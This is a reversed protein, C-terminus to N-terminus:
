DLPRPVDGGGRRDGRRRRRRGTAAMVGRDLWFPADTPIIARFAATAACGCGCASSWRPSCCSPTRCWAGASCRAGAAAVGAAVAPLLWWVLLPGTEAPLSSFQWWGIAAPPSPSPSCRGRWGPRTSWRWSCSRAASPPASPSRCGRRRRCGRGAVRRGDVPDGDVIMPVTSAQIQTAPRARRRRTRAGDLPGPPRALRVRGGSGVPQWDPPLTPDAGAPPTAAATATPTSTRRRRASTRRSSATPGSTCTRSRSTARRRRGRHRARGDLQLFSDGGVVTSTSAPPRRPRGVRRDDRLRDARGPRRARRRGAGAVAVVGVARRSAGRPGVRVMGTLTTPPRSCSASTAPSTTPAADEGGGVPWTLVLQGADDVAFLYSSHGVEITATPRRACRTASASRGPSPSCRPRTTPPSPTPAPRRLEARLRRARPTDRDPDVTVMAVEVREADDGLDDLATACTPWRRRACTRATRTASTSSWCATPRAGPVRVARRRPQRRAPRRRRGAARPRPDHRRARPRRRRVGRPAPLSWRGVVRPMRRRMRRGNLEVIYAVLDAVEADTLDTKPMTSPSATSSRPTPTPSRGPSTPRTSPSRRATPRARGDTGLAGAWAPGLAARATPATAPRAAARGPSSQRSGRDGDPSSSRVPRRRRRRRRVGVAGGLLLPVASRWRRAPGVTRAGDAPLRAASGASGGDARPTVIRPFRVRRRCDAADVLRRLRRRRRRRRRLGRRRRARVGVVDGARLAAVAPASRRRGAM